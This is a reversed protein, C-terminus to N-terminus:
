LALLSDKGMHFYFLILGPYIQIEQRRPDELEEWTKCLKQEVLTRRPCGAGQKLTM